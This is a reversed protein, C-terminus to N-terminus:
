VCFEDQSQGTCSLGHFMFLIQLSDEASHLKVGRSLPKCVSETSSDLSKLPPLTITDKSQAPQVSAHLVREATQFAASWASSIQLPCVASTGGAAHKQNAAHLNTRLLFRLICSNHLSASSTSNARMLKIPLRASTVSMSMSLGVFTDVEAHLILIQTM